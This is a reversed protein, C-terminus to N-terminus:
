LRNITFFKGNEDTIAHILKNFTGIGIKTIAAVKIEYWTYNKLGIIEKQMYAADLIVEFWYTTENDRYSIM